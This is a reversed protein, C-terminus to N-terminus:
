VNNINISKVQPTIVRGKRPIGMKHSFSPPIYRTRTKYCIESQNKTAEENICQDNHNQYLALKSTDLIHARIQKHMNSINTNYEYDNLASNSISIRYGAREKALHIWEHKIVDDITIRRSPDKELMQNILDALAEPINDYSKLNHPENIIKYFLKQINDDMFPLSGTAFLYLIIGLSWVDAEESYCEKEQNTIIEPAIYYPSGCRTSLLSGNNEADFIKSLGFDVLKAEYTSGLLINEPKLDRHAIKLNRHLYKVAMCIQTFINFLVRDNQILSTRQDFSYNSEFYSMLSGNEMYEMIIVFFRTDLNEKQSIIVTDNIPIGTLIASKDPRLDIEFSEYYRVINPHNAKKLNLIENQINSLPVKKDQIVKIAVKIKYTQHIALFTDSTSGTGIQRMLIYGRAKLLDKLSNFNLTRENNIGVENPDIFFVQKLM